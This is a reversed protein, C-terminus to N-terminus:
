LIQQYSAAVKMQKRETKLDTPAYLGTFTYM